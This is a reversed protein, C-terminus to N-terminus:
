QSDARKSYRESFVQGFLAEDAASLSALDESAALRGLQQLVRRMAQAAIRLDHGMMAFSQALKADETRFSSRDHRWKKLVKAGEESVAGPASSLHLAMLILEGFRQDLTKVGSVEGSYDFGGGRTDSTGRRSAEVLRNEWVASQTSRLLTRPQEHCLPNLALIAAAQRREEKTLVKPEDPLALLASLTREEFAPADGDEARDIPEPANDNGAAPAEDERDLWAIIAEEPDDSPEGSVMADIALPQLFARRDADTREERMLAALKEVYRAFSWTEGRALALRWVDFIDVADLDRAERTRGKEALYTERVRVLDAFAQLPLFKKRWARMYRAPAQVARKSLDNLSSNELFLTDLGVRLADVGSGAGPDTYPSNFLFDALAMARKVRSWVFSREGESSRVAVGDPGGAISFGTIEIAKPARRIPALFMGSEDLLCATAADRPGMRPQKALHGLCFLIQAMDWLPQDINEGGGGVIALVVKEADTAPLKRNRILEAVEAVREPDIGWDM